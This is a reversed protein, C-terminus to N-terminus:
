KNTVRYVVIDVVAGDYLRAFVWFGDKEVKTVSEIKAFSFNSILPTDRNLNVEYVKAQGLRSGDIVFDSGDADTIVAGGIAETLTIRGNEKKGVFGFAEEVLEEPEYYGGEAIGKKAIDTADDISMLVKIKDIDGKVDTDFIVVDGTKLAYDVVEGDNNLFNEGYKDTYEAGDESIVGSVETGDLLGYIKTIETGNANTAKSVKSIVLLKSEAAVEGTQGSVVVVKPFGDTIDYAEVTYENNDKFISSAKTVTFDDEDDSAVAPVNFVLTEPLFYISGIKNSSASYNGTKTADLSFEDSNASSLATYLKNIQGSSNVNYMFLQSKPTADKGDNIITYLATDLDKVYSETSSAGNFSVKNALDLIKWEGAATLVKFQVKKLGIGSEVGAAFLYAYNGTLSVSVDKYVIRNDVNLYFKGEDGVTISSGVFSSGNIARRYDKGGITYSDDTNNESTISEIKDGTRKESVKGEVINRSIYVVVLQEDDSVVLTLVDDEKIDAFTAPTGDAMYFLTIINEDDIDIDVSSGDKGEITNSATNISKVVADTTYETVLVYEYEDDNDNDIFQVKGPKLEKLYDTVVAEYNSSRGNYYLGGKADIDLKTTSSDSEKAFYEVKGVVSAESIDVKEIQSYDITVINNKGSKPAVALLTLDGTFDDEAAYAVVYQGFLAEASTKGVAFSLSPYKNSVSDQVQLVGNYYSYEISIEDDDAKKGDTLFTSTIKGEYKEVKLYDKLLTKNVVSYEPENVKFGTQEMLKVDLANFILRAVIARKAADGAQGTAGKAIGEQSAIVLYGTPYGGNNEAKPTYGLAAVIMKTAQEYTVPDEPRFTGDTFGAIIGSQAALNIYGTAWHDAKVDSFNTAGKAGNSAAELGKARVVIAAVEARTITNDPNFNGKDDGIMINLSSLITVAEAYSADDAVDPFVSASAALGLMMTFAIVFAFVKKLNKM